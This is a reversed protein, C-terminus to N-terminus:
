DYKDPRLRMYLYCMSLLFVLLAASFEFESQVLDDGLFTGIHYIGHAIFVVALLASLLFFSRSIRFVKTAIYLPIVSAGVVIIGEVLEFYDMM